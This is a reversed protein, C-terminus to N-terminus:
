VKILSVKEKGYLEKQIIEYMAHPIDKGVLGFVEGADMQKDEVDWLTVKNTDKFNTENHFAIKAYKNNKPDEKKNIFYVLIGDGAYRNFHTTYDDRDSATCWKTTAGYMRSSRISLPRLVLYNEDDHLVRTERKKVQSETIKAKGEKIAAELDEFSPYSYIDKNALQSRENLDHFDHILEKIDKLTKTEYDKRVDAIYNEVLKLMYPVYKNTGSPDLKACIDVFDIIYKEDKLEKLKAM